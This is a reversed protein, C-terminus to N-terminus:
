AQTDLAYGSVAIGSSVQCSNASMNPVNFPSVFLESNSLTTPWLSLSFASDGADSRIRTVYKGYLQAYLDIRAGGTCWSSLSISTSFSFSRCVVSYSSFFLLLALSSNAHFFFLNRSTQPRVLAFSLFTKGDRKFKKRKGKKREKRKKRRVREARETERREKAETAREERM